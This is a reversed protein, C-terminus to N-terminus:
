GKQARRGRLGRLIKDLEEIATEEADAKGIVHGIFLGFVFIAFFAIAHYITFM